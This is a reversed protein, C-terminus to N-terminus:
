DRQCIIHHWCRVNHSIVYINFLKLQIFLTLIKRRRNGSCSFVRESPSSTAPACLYKKAVLSLAPFIDAHMKWWQLPDTDHDIIASQLYSTLESEIAERQTLRTNTATSQKFFSALSKKKTSPPPMGPEEPVPGAPDPKGGGLDAQLAEVELVARHKLAEVREGPIYQVRFRPDALSAMDLLDSTDPDAYKANLYDLIRTKISRCLESDDEERILLSSNFLHLVPRVYSLTVYEEGSLADTFDHLPKLVKQVAQLVEVDQWNLVLHRSKKDAFLVKSLAAEQELVRSIMQQRSGWRTASETILQHTPLGLQIQVEALERRRKWSYSFSSVMKKCLAICRTIRHDDM